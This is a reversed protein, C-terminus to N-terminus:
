FIWILRVPSRWAILWGGSWAAAAFENVGGDCIADVSGSISIIGPPASCFSEASVVAGVTAGISSATTVGNCSFVKEDNLGFDGIPVIMSSFNLLTTLDGRSFTVTLTPAASGYLPLSGYRSGKSYYANDLGM